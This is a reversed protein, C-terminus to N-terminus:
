RPTIVMSDGQLQVSGLQRLASQGLLNTSLGKVVMAEVNQLRQGAIEIEDLMVPAGYGTGSATQVTPQFEEDSPLIGIAGAEAETLAVLDAGTDVLFDVESGNVSGKLSFQGSGNRALTLVQDPDDPAASAQIVAAAPANDQAPMIVAATMSMIGTASLAIVLLRKM